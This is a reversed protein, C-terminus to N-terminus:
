VHLSRRIRESRASVQQLSVLSSAGKRYPTEESTLWPSDLSIMGLDDVFATIPVARGTTNDKRCTWVLQGKGLVGGSDAADDSSGSAFRYPMNQAARCAAQFEQPRNMM